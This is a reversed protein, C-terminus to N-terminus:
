LIDSWFDVKKIRNYDITSHKEYKFEIMFYQTLNEGYYIIDSGYISFVPNNYSFQNALYRHGYLPILPQSASIKKLIYDYKETSNKPLPGWKKQWDIMEINEIIEKSPYLIKEKIKEINKESFDRWNYFGDSIPLVENYFKKLEEPFHIQYCNEIEKIETEDLGKSCLVGVEHLKEIIKKYV